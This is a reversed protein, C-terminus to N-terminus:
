SLSRVRKSRRLVRWTPRPDITVDLRRPRSGNAGTRPPGGDRQRAVGGSNPEVIEAICLATSTDVPLRLAKYLRELFMESGRADSARGRSSAIASRAVAQRETLELTELKKLLKQSKPATEHFATACALLRLRESGNLGSSAQIDAVLADERRVAPAM